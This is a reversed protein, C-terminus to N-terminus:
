GRAYAELADILQEVEAETNYHAMSVRIVGSDPDLGLAEVLRPAYFHGYRLGIGKADFFAPAESPARDRWRFSIVPLRNAADIPGFIEVDTARQLYDLLPTMLASEHDAIASWADAPAGLRESLDDFYQGVGGVGAMLEYPCAGPMMRTNLDAHQHFYHNLNGPLDVVRKNAYLCAVHPGFVKYYSFVYFDVDWDVVQLPRHPAYAVGDVVSIASTQRLRKCVERINTIQGLINSSHSFAVVRTRQNLLAELDAVRIEQNASISWERIRVGHAALARWAGINAEHDFNTVIVEDGASLSPLLSKALANILATTSAGFVLQEAEVRGDPDFFRAASRASQKLREAAELAPAYTAGLQQPCEALYSATAAISQRCPATGGANDLLVTPTAHVAPFDPRAAAEFESTM